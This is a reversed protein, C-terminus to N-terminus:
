NLGAQQLTAFLKKRSPESIPVLPLRLEDALWGKAAMAAKVPAPNSEVFLDRFVATYKRDLEEASKWDKRLGADVLAKVEAPILNSAVSSRFLM